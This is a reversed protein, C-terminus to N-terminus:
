ESYKLIELCESVIILKAVPVVSTAWDSHPVPVLIGEVQLRKYEAELKPRLSYPVSRAKKFRPKTGPKVYLHGDVTMIGLGPKMVRPYKALVKDLDSIHIVTHFTQEWNLKIESLWDRGFIQPKNAVSAVVISLQKQQGEYAVTVQAEGLLALKEKGYTEM